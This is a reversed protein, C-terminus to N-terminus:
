NGALCRDIFADSEGRRAAIQDLVSQELPTELLSAANGPREATYTRHTAGVSSLLGTVKISRYKSLQALFPRQFRLSFVCGHFYSTVVATAGQFLHVFDDPNATLLSRDTWMNRYGVSVIQLNRARAWDKVERVLEPLFDHGYVLVYPSTPKLQSGASQPTPLFQLCPDLVMAPTFGLSQEILTNSNEDRVSIHSFRKLRGAWEASLGRSADYNGFSAAYSALRRPKLAEGFFMPVGGLWPHAFNWVEDSGVVVLDYDAFDPPRHLSFLRTLPLGQQFRLFKATKVALSAIDRKPAPRKRTLAHRLESWAYDRSAYNLVDVRHGKAALGQSLCRVQWYAGYNICRHFTLIGIKLPGPSIM